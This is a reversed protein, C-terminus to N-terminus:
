TRSHDNSKLEFTIHVYSIIRCNYLIQLIQITIMNM